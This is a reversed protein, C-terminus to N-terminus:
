LNIIVLHGNKNNGVTAPMDAAPTVTLSSGMALCLDAKEANDFGSKIEWDPLNEGFNIISDYLEGGCNQCKRGTKHDHTKMANRVRFDRM